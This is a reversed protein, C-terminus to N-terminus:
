ERQLLAALDRKAAARAPWLGAGLVAAMALVLAQILIGAPMRWFITWGFFQRNIVYIMQWALVLGAAVSLVWALLGMLSFEWLNMARIQGKSAGMARLSAIEAHRELLLAVLTDFVGVAAVVLAILQLAYTVAFTQDFTDFVEKRIKSNPLLTLAYRAGFKADLQNLLREADTGPALYLALADVGADKWLRRYWARNMYLVGTPNYDYFIGAVHFKRKGGPTPLEMEGGSKLKLLNAVRESVIIARGAAYDAEAATQGRETSVFSLRRRGAKLSPLTNALILVPQGQSEVEAARLTDMQQVGPYRSAFTVVEPPLGATREGDFGNSPAVFLDAGITNDIWEAVTARFSYVMVNMGITLALSTALAAVALGSRNLARRLDDAALGGAVGGLRAALPRLIQGCHLTLWPAFAAFGGLTAGAAAFGVLPSRGGIDPRCLVAALGILLVGGGALYPAAKETGRHLTLGTL